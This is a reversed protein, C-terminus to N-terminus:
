PRATHQAHRSRAIAVPLLVVCLLALSAEVGFAEHHALTLAVRIVSGVWLLAGIPRLDSDGAPIDLPLDRRAVSRYRALHIVVAM